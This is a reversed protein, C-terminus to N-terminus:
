RLRGNRKEDQYFTNFLQENDDSEISLSYIKSTDNSKGVCRDRITLTLTPDEPNLRNINQYKTDKLNITTRSRLFDYDNEDYISGNCDDYYITEGWRQKICVGIELTTYDSIRTATVKYTKDNKDLM